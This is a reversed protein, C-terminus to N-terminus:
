SGAPVGGTQPRQSPILGGLFHLVDHVPILNGPVPLLELALGLGLPTVDGVVLPVADFTAAFLEDAEHLLLVTMGLVGGFALHVGPNGTESARDRVPAAPFRHARGWSSPSPTKKKACAASPAPSWARVPLGAPVSLRGVERQTRGTPVLPRGSM